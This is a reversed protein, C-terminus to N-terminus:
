TAPRADHATRCAPKEGAEVLAAAATVRAFKSLHNGGYGDRIAALAARLREIERAAAILSGNVGMATAQAMGSLDRSAVMNLTEVIGVPDGRNSEQSAKAEYIATPADDMDSM